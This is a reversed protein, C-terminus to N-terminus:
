SLYTDRLHIITHVRLFTDHCLPYLVCRSSMKNKQSKKWTREAYMKYRQRQKINVGMVSTVDIFIIFLM